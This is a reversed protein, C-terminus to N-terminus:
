KKEKEKIQKILEDALAIAEKCIVPYREKKTDYKHNCIISVFEKAAEARFSQWDFDNASKENIPEFDWIINLGKGVIEEGKTDIYCVYDITPYRTYACASYSLVDVIENTKRIRYKMKCTTKSIKFVIM